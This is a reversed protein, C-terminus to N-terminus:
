WRAGDRSKRKKKPPNQSEVKARLIGRPRDDRGRRERSGREAASNEGSFRGYSSRVDPFSCGREATVYEGSPSGGFRATALVVSPRDNFRSTIEPLYRPIAAAM